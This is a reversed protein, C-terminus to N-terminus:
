LMLTNSDSDEGSSGVEDSINLGKDRKPPVHVM